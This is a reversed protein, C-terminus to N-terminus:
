SGYRSEIVKVPGQDPISYIFLDGYTYPGDGTGGLRHHLLRLNGSGNGVLLVVEGAHRALIDSVIKIVTNKSIRPILTVELGLHKSLPGVTALNRQLDPSYIAAIEMDGAADVLARAREHGQPTVIFFNDREAHRILMVTTITGSEADAEIGICDFSLVLLFIIIRIIFIRNETRM